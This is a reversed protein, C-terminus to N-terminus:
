RSDPVKAPTRHGDDSSEHSELGREDSLEIDWGLERDRSQKKLDDVDREPRHRRFRM